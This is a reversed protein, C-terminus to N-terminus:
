IKGLCWLSTIEKSRAAHLPDSADFAKGHKPRIDLRQVLILGHQTILQPIEDLQRLGLHEALDSMILWAQGRESLHQAVGSLFGKLMAGGADFVAHEVPSSAKAPLWPPNCVILDARANPTDPADPFLNAQQIQIQRTYGLREINERACHLAREDTDTATINPISRKALIAAIVGTGTGIDWATTCNPPLEAQMLLELYEGRIPSFVGYHPHIHANLAPILVGKKRWEHAAILAQLQRLSLVYPETQEGLVEACAQAVEPARRLDIRHDAQVPILIANLIHARQAQAMRHRHFQELPTAVPAVKKASKKPKDIRRMLAQLLHRANQFDGHWILGHGASALRYAQDAPLTDDALTLHKPPPHKAESIWRAQHPGDNEHWHLHPPHNAQM